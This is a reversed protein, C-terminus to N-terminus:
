PRESVPNSTPAPLPKKPSGSLLDAIEAYAYIVPAHDKPLGGTDATPGYSSYLERNLMRLLTM